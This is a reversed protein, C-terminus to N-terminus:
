DKNRSSDGEKEEELKVTQDDTGESDGLEHDEM